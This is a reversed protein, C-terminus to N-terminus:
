NKPRFNIFIAIRWLYGPVSEAGLAPPDWYLPFARRSAESANGAPDDQLKASLEGSRANKHLIRSFCFFIDASVSFHIPQFLFIYRSFCFFTGASVLFHTPQFLFIHRSFCFFTDASVSFYITRSTSLGPGCSANKGTFCIRRRDPVATNWSRRSRSNRQFLWRTNEPM